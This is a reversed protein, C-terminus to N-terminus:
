IIPPACFRCKCFFEWPVTNDKDTGSLYQIQTGPQAMVGAISLFCGILTYFIRRKMSIFLM